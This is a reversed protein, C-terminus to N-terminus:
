IWAPRNDPSGSPAYDATKENTYNTHNTTTREKTADDATLGSPTSHCLFPPCFFTAILLDADIVKKSWM